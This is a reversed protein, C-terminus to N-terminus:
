ELTDCDGLYGQLEYEEANGDEDITFIFSENNCDISLYVDSQIVTLTSDSAPDEPDDLVEIIDCLPGYDKSTCGAAVEPFDAAM